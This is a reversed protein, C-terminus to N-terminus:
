FRVDENAISLIYLRQRSKCFNLIPPSDVPDSKMELQDYPTRVPGVKFIAQEFRSFDRVIYSHKRARRGKM